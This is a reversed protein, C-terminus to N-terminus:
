HQARKGAHPGPKGLPQTGLICPSARRGRASLPWQAQASGLVPDACPASLSGPRGRAQGCGPERWSRVKGRVERPAGPADEASSLAGPLPESQPQGQAPARSAPSLFVVRALAGRAVTDQHRQGHRRGCCSAAAPVSSWSHRM